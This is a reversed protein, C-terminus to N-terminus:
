RSGAMAAVAPQFGAAGIQEEPAERLLRVPSFWLWILTLPGGLAAVAIAARIGFVEALLGGALAGLPLAGRIVVRLSAVVRGRIHDPTIAQRLSVQNADYMPSGLSEVVLAAMLWPTTLWSGAPVLVLLIMAAAKIAVGALIAPGLGLWAASRAPLLTGVLYGAGYV